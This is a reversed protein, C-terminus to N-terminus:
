AIQIASLVEEATIDSICAFGKGCEESDHFLDCGACPVRRSIITGIEEQGWQNWNIRATFITV